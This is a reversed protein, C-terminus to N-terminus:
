VHEGSRPLPQRGPRRVCAPRNLTKEVMAQFRPEGLAREQALHARIAHQEKPVIPADLWARYADGRAGRDAGLDLFVPHPTVLPDIRLGLNAHVSSWRHAEPADAIAARVPNLEIYRYVTLLYRDSDVLCSKFRGEWLTGTRRHRRNFAQVYCQGHRRLAQSLAGTTQATTLLHVHNGMLVYAHVAVSARKMEHHLLAHYHTRDEDDIFVAARNVGRQVIHMPVGPLELRPRRPM